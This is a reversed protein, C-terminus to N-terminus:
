SNFFSLMTDMDVNVTPNGSPGTSSSQAQTINNIVTTNQAIATAFNTSNVLNQIVTSSVSIQEVAAKIDAPTMSRPTNISGAVIESASTTPIPTLVSTGLFESLKIRM